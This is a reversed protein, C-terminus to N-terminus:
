LNVTIGPHAAQILAKVAATRNTIGTNRIDLNTLGVFKTSDAFINADGTILPCNYITIDYLSSLSALEEINGELLSDGPCVFRRIITCNKITEISGVLEPSGGVTLIDMATLKSADFNGSTGENATFRTIDTAYVFDDFVARFGNGALFFKIDYKNPITIKIPTNLPCYVYTETNAPITKTYGAPTSGGASTVFQGGVAEIVTEKAMTLRLTLAAGDASSITKIVATGLKVLSSDDVVAKLKRVFCNNSM